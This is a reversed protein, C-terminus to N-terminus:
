KQQQQKGMTEGVKTMAKILVDSPLIKKDDMVPKGEENLILSSMVEAVAAIDQQDANAIKAFINLPQRDLIYFDLADGYKEVLDADDLTVKILQPEKALDQLKM